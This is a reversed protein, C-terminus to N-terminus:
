AQVLNTCLSPQRNEKSPCIDSSFYVGRLFIKYKWQAVSIQCGAIHLENAKPSKQQGM